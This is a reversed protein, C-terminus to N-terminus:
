KREGGRQSEPGMAACRVLALSDSKRQSNGGNRQIDLYRPSGLRAVYDNGPEPKEERKGGTHREKAFTSCSEMADKQRRVGLKCTKGLAGFTGRPEVRKFFFPIDVNFGKPVGQRKLVEEKQVPSVGGTTKMVRIVGGLLLQNYVQKPAPYYTRVRIEEGEKGLRNEYARICKCHPSQRRKEKKGMKCSTIRVKIKRPSSGTVWSYYRHV